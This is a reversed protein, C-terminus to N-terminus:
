ELFCYFDQFGRVMPKAEGETKLVAPGLPNKM